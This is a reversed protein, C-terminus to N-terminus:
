LAGDRLSPITGADLLAEVDEPFVLRRERVIEAIADADDPREAAFRILEEPSVTFYRDNTTGQKFVWRSDTEYVAHIVKVMASVRAKEEPTAQLVNRPMNFESDQMGRYMEWAYVYDDSGGRLDLWGGTDRVGIDQVLFLMYGADADDLYNNLVSMLLQERNNNPAHLIFERYADLVDRGILGVRDKLTEIAVISTYQYSGSDYVRELAEQVELM